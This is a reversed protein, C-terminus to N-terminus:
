RVSAPVVGRFGAARSTSGFRIRIAASGHPINSNARGSLGTEGGAGCNFTTGCTVGWGRYSLFIKWERQILPLRHHDGLKANATHTTPTTCELDVNRKALLAPKEVPMGVVCATSIRPPGNVVPAQLKAIRLKTFANWVAGEGIIKRDQASTTPTRAKRLAPGLGDPYLKDHSVGQPFVTFRKHLRAILEASNRKSLERRKPVIGVRTKRNLQLRKSFFRMCAAPRPSNQPMSGSRGLSFVSGGEGHPSTNEVANGCWHFNSRPRIKEM